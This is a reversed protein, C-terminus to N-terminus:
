TADVEGSIGANENCSVTQRTLIYYCIMVAVALTALSSLDLWAVLALLQLLLLARRAWPLALLWQEIAIFDATPLKARDKGVMDPRPCPDDDKGQDRWPSGPPLKPLIIQGSEVAELWEVTEPDPDLHGITQKAWDLPTVGESNKEKLANPHQQCLFQIVELSQELACAAHLPLNGTNCKEKIAGPYKRILLQIVELSQEFGCACHLPLRGYIDKKKLAGPHQQVM